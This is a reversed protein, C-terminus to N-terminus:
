ATWRGTLAGLADVVQDESMSTAARGSEPGLLVLDMALSEGALIFRWRHPSDAALTTARDDLLRGARWLEGGGVPLGSWEPLSPLVDVSRRVILTAAESQGILAVDPQSVLMPSAATLAAGRPGDEYRFSTLMTSVGMLDPAPGGFWTTAEHHPGALVLASESRDPAEYVVADYGRMPQVRETAGPLVHTPIVRHQGLPALFFQRSLYPGSFRTTGFWRFDGFADPVELDVPAGSPAVLSVARTTSAVM